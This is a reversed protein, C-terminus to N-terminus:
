PTDSYYKGVVCDKTHQIKKWEKHSKGCGKCKFFNTKYFDTGKYITEVDFFCKNLPLKYRKNWDELDFVMGWTACDITPCRVYAGTNNPYPKIEPTAGCFPCICVKQPMKATGTNKM